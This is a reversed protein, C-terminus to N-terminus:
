QQLLFMMNVSLLNRAEAADRTNPLLRALFLLIPHLLLVLVMDQGPLKLKLELVLVLVLVLVLLHNKVTPRFVMVLYLPLRVVVLLHSELLTLLGIMMVALHSELKLKLKLVFVLVMLVCVSLVVV